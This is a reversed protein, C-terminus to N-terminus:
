SSYASSYCSDYCRCSGNTTASSNNYFHSCKSTTGYHSGQSQDKSDQFFPENSNAGTSLRVPALAKPPVAPSSRTSSSSASATSSGGRLALKKKRQDDRYQNPYMHNPFSLIKYKFKGRVDASGGVGEPTRHFIIKLNALEETTKPQASM